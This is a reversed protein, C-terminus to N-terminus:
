LQNVLPTYLNREIQSSPRIKENYNYRMLRVKGQNLPSNMMEEYQREDTSWSFMSQRGTGPIHGLDPESLLFAGLGVMLSSYLAKKKNSYNKITKWTSQLLSSTKNIISDFKEKILFSEGWEERMYKNGLRAAYTTNQILTKYENWKDSQMNYRMADAVTFTDVNFEKLQKEPSLSQNRKKIDRNIANVLENVDDMNGLGAYEKEILSKYTREYEKIKKNMDPNSLDLKARLDAAKEPNTEQLYNIYLNTQNKSLASRISLPLEMISGQVIMHFRQAHDSLKYVNQNLFYNSTMISHVEPALSKINYNDMWSWIDSTNKIKVEYSSNMKIEDVSLKHRIFEGTTLNILNMEGVNYISDVIGYLGSLNKNKSKFIRQGAAVRFRQKDSFFNSFYEATADGSGAMLALMFTDGDKDIKGLKKMAPHIIVTNKSYGNKSILTSDSMDSLFTAQGMVVDYTSLPYKVGIGFIPLLGEEVAKLYGEKQMKKSLYDFSNIFNEFGQMYVEQFRTLAAEVKANKHIKISTNKNIKETKYNQSDTIYRLRVHEGQGRYDQMYKIAYNMEEISTNDLEHKINKFVSKSTITENINVSRNYDFLNDNSYIPTGIDVTGQISTVNLKALEKVKLDKLIDYYERSLTEVDYSKLKKMSLINKLMNRYNQTVLYDENNINRGLIQDALYTFTKGNVSHYIVKGYGDADRTAAIRNLAKQFQIYEKNESVKKVLKLDIQQAEKDLMKEELTRDYTYTGDIERGVSNFVRDFFEREAKEDKIGLNSLAQKVAKELSISNTKKYEALTSLGEEMVKEQLSYTYISDRKIRLKTDFFSAIGKGGAQMKLMSIFEDNIKMDFHEGSRTALNSIIRFGTYSNLTLNFDIKGDKTRYGRLGFVYFLNDQKKLINYIDKYLKGYSEKKNNKINKFREFIDEGLGTMIKFFKQGQESIRTDLLTTTLNKSVKKLYFSKLKNENLKAIKEFETTNIVNNEFSFLDRIHHESLNLLGVKKGIEKIGTLLKEFSAKTKLDTKIKDNNIIFITEKEVKKTSIYDKLNDPILNTTDITPNNKLHQSIRGLAVNLMQYSSGKSFMANGGTTIDIKAAKKDLGVLNDYKGSIIGSNLAFALKTGASIKSITNYTVIWKGEPTQTIEKIFIDNGNENKVTLNHKEALQKYGIIDNVNLVNGAKVKQEVEDLVIKKDIDDLFQIEKLSKREKNLAVGGEQFEQTTNAGLIFSINASLEYDSYFKKLEKNNYIRNYFVSPKHTDHSLVQLSQNYQYMKDIVGENVVGFPLIDNQSILNYKSKYVSQSNISSGELLAPTIYSFGGFLNAKLQNIHGVQKGKLNVNNDAFANLFDLLTQSFITDGRSMHFSDYSKNKHIVDYIVKNKSDKSYLKDYFDIIDDLRKRLVSNTDTVKYLSRLLEPINESRNRHYLTEYNPVINTLLQLDVIGKDFLRESFTKSYTNNPDYKKIFEKLIPIDSTMKGDKQMIPNKAVVVSDNDALALTSNVEKIFDIESNVATVNGKGHIKEYRSLYDKMDKWDPNSIDYTGAQYNMNIITKSFSKNPNRRDVYTITIERLSNNESNFETDINITNKSITPNIVNKIASELEGQYTKGGLLHTVIDFDKSLLRHFNEMTGTATEGLTRSKENYTHQINHIKNAIKTDVNETGKEFTLDKINLEATDIITKIQNDFAEKAAAVVGIKDLKNTIVNHKPIFVDLSYDGYVKNNFKSAKSFNFRVKSQNGDSILNAEVKIGKSSLETQVKKIQALFYDEELPSLHDLNWTKLYSIMEKRQIESISFNDPLYGNRKLEDIAKNVNDASLRDINRKITNDLISKLQKKSNENQLISTNRMMQDLLGNDLNDFRGSIFNFKYVSVTQNKNIKRRLNQIKHRLNVFSNIYKQNKRNGGFYNDFLLEQEVQIEKFEKITQELYKINDHIFDSSQPSDLLQKVNEFYKYIDDILGTSGKTGKLGLAINFLDNSSKLKKTDKSLYTKNVNREFWYTRNNFYGQSTFKNQTNDFPTQLYDIKNKLNNILSTKEDFLKNSEFGRLNSLFVRKLGEHQEITYIQNKENYTLATKNITKSAQQAKNQDVTRISIFANPTFLDLIDKRLKKNFLTALAAANAVFTLLSSGSKNRRNEKDNYNNAM